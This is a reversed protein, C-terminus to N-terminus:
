FPGSLYLGFQKLQFPGHKGFAYFPAKLIIAIARAELKLLKEPVWYIQCLYELCTVAYTNYALISYFM